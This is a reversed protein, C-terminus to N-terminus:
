LQFVWGGLTYVQVLSPNSVKWTTMLTCLLRTVVVELFPITPAWAVYIQHIFFSICINADTKSEMNMSVVAWVLFQRQYLIELNHLNEDLLFRHNDPMAVYLM